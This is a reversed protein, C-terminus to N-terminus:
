RRRSEFGRVRMMLVNVVVEDGVRGGVQWKEKGKGRGRGSSWVAWGKEM